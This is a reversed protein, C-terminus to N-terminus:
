LPHDLPRSVSRLPLPPGRGKLVISRRPPRVPMRWRRSCKFRRRPPRHTEGKRFIKTTSPGPDVVAPSMGFTKQAALPAVMKESYRMPPSGAAAATQRPRPPPACSEADCSKMCPRGLYLGVTCQSKTTQYRCYLSFTGHDDLGQIM